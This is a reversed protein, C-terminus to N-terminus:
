RELLVWRIFAIRKNLAKVEKKNNVGSNLLSDRHNVDCKLLARIEEEDRLM